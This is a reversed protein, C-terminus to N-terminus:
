PSRPESPDRRDRALLRDRAANVQAALAASGGQDPHLRTMLRRHAARVQDAPADPPLELLRYAEDRSMAPRKRRPLVVRLLWWLLLAGGLLILILKM